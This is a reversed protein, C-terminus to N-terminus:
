RLVLRVCRLDTRARPPCQTGRVAPDRAPNWWVTISYPSPVTCGARCPGIEGRGDPLRALAARWAALDTRAAGSATGRLPMGHRSVDYHGAAVGAPNARMREAMDMAALVARTRMDAAQGTRLAVTQLAAVGLLGISLVLLAILVEILTFGRDHQRIKWRVGATETM